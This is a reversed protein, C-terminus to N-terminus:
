NKKNIILMCLGIFLRQAVLAIVVGIFIMKFYFGNKVLAWIGFAIIFYKVFLGRFFQRLAIKARAKDDLNKNKVPDPYKSIIYFAGIAIFYLFVGLWLSLSTLYTYISGQM